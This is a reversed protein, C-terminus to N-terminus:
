VNSRLHEAIAAEDNPSMDSALLEAQRSLQAIEMEIMDGTVAEVVKRVPAELGLLRGRQASLKALTEIARLRPGDHQVATRHGNEDETYGSVDPSRLSAGISLPAGCSLKVPRHAARPRVTGTTRSRASSHVTSNGNLAGTRVRPAGMPAPGEDQDVQHTSSGVPLGGSRHVPPALARCERIGGKVGLIDFSRQGDEPM